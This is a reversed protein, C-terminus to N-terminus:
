GGQKPEWKTPDQMDSWEITKIGDFSMFYFGRGTNVISRELAPWGADFRAKVMKDYEKIINREKSM